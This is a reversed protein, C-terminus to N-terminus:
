SLRNVIDANPNGTVSVYEGNVLLTPTGAGGDPGTSLKQAQSLAFKTYTEDAICDAAGAAGVETAIRTLGETTLGSGTPNLAFVATQFDHATIGGSDEAVCYLASASRASFNTGSAANLGSLAVPQMRLTIDGAELKENITPGYAAEFQQCHPCFFDMWVEVEDSGEGVIIAGTEQEIAAGQPVTGPSTAQNNLVVLVVIVAIIVVAVMASLWIAFWNTQRAAQAM